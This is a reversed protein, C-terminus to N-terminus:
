SQRVPECVLKSVGPTASEVKGVTIADNARAIWVVSPQFFPPGAEVSSMDQCARARVFQRQPRVPSQQTVGRTPDLPQGFAPLQSSNEIPTRALRQGDRSGNGRHPLRCGRRSRHSKSWDGRIDPFHCVNGVSDDVEWCERLNAIWGECAYRR